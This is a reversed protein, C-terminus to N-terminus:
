PHACRLGQKGYKNLLSFQWVPNKSYGHVEWSGNSTWRARAAKPDSSAVTLDSTMEMMNGVVDAHGAPGRGRTRGPAAVFVVFDWTVLNPYEYSYKYNAYEISENLNPVLSPTAAPDARLAADSATPFRYGFYTGSNQAKPLPTAGWPMASPGWAAQWEAFTELRGGDWICFSQAMLYDVCNLSKTDYIDQGHESARDGFYDSQVQANMWYTHSGPADVRCGQLGLNQGQFMAGGLQRYASTYIGPTPAAGGPEGYFRDALEGANANGEKSTPLYLDWAPDMTAGHLEGNARAQQVFGRVDGGVREVFARMRGATVQYKDLSVGGAPATTCCSEHAAGPKGVEGLGCTDGGYHGTCSRGAACKGDYGCGNSACDEHAACAKGTACGPNGAGGCDVDSETGNKVGDTPSPAQCVLAACVSSQCDSAVVCGLADACRPAGAGGCDIDTEDGNKVGDAPAPAVCKGGTCVDSACDERLACSLGAGCRPAKSGGCDIDTEDGNRFGDDVAPAQCTLGQGKDLCISSACDSSVKCRALAGCRSPSSGGCDVDTEDGNQVNDTPGPPACEGATTCVKSPCEAPKTCKKAPEAPTSPGAEGAEGAGGSAAAAGEAGEPVEPATSTTCAALPVGGLALLLVLPGKTTRIKQM